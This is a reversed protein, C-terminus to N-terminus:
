GKRCHAKWTANVTITTRMAVVPSDASLTPEIVIPPRLMDKQSTAPRALVYDQLLAEDGESEM